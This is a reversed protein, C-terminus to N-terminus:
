PDQLELKLDALAHFLHWLWEDRDPADRKM